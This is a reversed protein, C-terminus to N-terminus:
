HPPVHGPAKRSDAILQAAGQALLDRAATEGLAAAEAVAASHEVYLRESGDAKLVVASLHLRGDAEIRGWAGVPALCGGRLAHLLARETEIAAHTAADDLKALLQLTAADDARAEIGLAGQGVAPLMISKPLVEAINADLKLRVLGAEALILAAYEGERAKRLRTDVNGRVDVLQLDPRVHLLQARRRQSGTGVKTGEPLEGLTRYRPSVLCDGIPGRAPVAALTLGAVPDTPLDKLSHVALDIEGGLLARQLEKTFVGQSGIAGIPGTQERDGSTTIPVLEVDAGLRRLEAATWEAQWRAL